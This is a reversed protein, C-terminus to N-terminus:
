GAELRVRKEALAAYAPAIEIGVFKRGTRAAAVCVAGSGCTPDCILAGRVTYNEILAELLDVPRPCPHQGALKNALHASWDSVFFDLPQKRGYPYIAKKGPNWKLVLPEWGYAVGRRLKVRDKCAAFFASTPVSGNGSVPSTTTHNGAPGSAERNSSVCRKKTSRVCGNGIVMPIATVIEGQITSTTSAGLRISFSPM